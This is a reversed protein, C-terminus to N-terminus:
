SFCLFILKEEVVKVVTKLIHRYALCKSDDTHGCLIKKHCKALEELSKFFWKTLSSSKDENLSAAILHNEFGNEYLCIIFVTTFTTSSFNLNKYKELKDAIRRASGGQDQDLKFM